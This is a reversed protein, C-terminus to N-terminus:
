YYNYDEQKRVKEKTQPDVFLLREVVEDKLIDKDFIERYAAFRFEDADISRLEIGM